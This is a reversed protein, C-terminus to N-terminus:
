VVEVQLDMLLVAVAVAEEVLDLFDMIVQHKIIDQDVKDVLVVMVLIDVLVVAVVLVLVMLIIRIDVVM